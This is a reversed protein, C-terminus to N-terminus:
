RAPRTAAPAPCRTRVSAAKDGGAESAFLLAVPYGSDGVVEDVPLRGVELRGYAEEIQPDKEPSETQDLEDRETSPRCRPM